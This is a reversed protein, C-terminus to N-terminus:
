RPDFFADDALADALAPELEAHFGWFRALLARYGDRTAVRTEWALDREIAEHATRTEARLCELIDTM